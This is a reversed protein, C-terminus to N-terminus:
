KAAQRARLAAICIALPLTAAFAIEKPGGGSSLCHHLDARAKNTLKGNDYGPWSLIGHGGWDEPVLTMAADISATFEPALHSKDNGDCWWGPKHTFITGEHPRVVIAEPDGSVAVAIDADLERDAGTAAELRAILDGM